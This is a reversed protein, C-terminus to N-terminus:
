YITPIVKLVIKLVLISLWLGLLVQLLSIFETIPLFYNAWSLYESQMVVFQGFPNDTILQLYPTLVDDKAWTAFDVALNICSDLIWDGFAVIADCIGQFGSVLYDWLSTFLDGITSM